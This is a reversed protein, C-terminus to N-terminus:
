AATKGAGGAFHLVKLLIAMRIKARKASKPQLRGTKLQGFTWGGMM